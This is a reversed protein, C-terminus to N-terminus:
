SYSNIILKELKDVYYYCPETRIEIESIIGNEDKKQFYFNTYISSKNSEIEMKTKSDILRFAIM